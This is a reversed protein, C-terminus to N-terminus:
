RRDGADWREKRYEHFQLDMKEKLQFKLCRYEFALNDDNLGKRTQKVYNDRAETPKLMSIAHNVMYERAMEITKQTIQISEGKFPLITNKM